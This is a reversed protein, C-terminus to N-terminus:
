QRGGLLDRAQDNEQRMRKKMEQWLVQTAYSGREEPSGGDFRTGLEETEIDFFEHDEQTRARVENLFFCAELYAHAFVDWQDKTYTPRVYGVQNLKYFLEEAIQSVDAFATAWRAREEATFYFDVAGQLGGDLIDSIMADPSTHGDPIRGELAAMLMPVAQFIMCAKFNDVQAAKIRRGDITTLERISMPVGEGVLEM